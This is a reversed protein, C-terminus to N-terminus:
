RIQEELYFKWVQNGIFRENGRDRWNLERNAYISNVRVIQLYYFFLLPTLLPSKEVMSITICVITLQNSSGQFSFPYLLLENGPKRFGPVAEPIRGQSGQEEEKRWAWPSEPKFTCQPTTNKKKKPTFKEPITNIKDNKHLTHYQKHIMFTNRKNKTPLSTFIM